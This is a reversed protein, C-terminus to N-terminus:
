RMLKSFNLTIVKGIPPELVDEMDEKRPRGRGRKAVDKNIEQDKSIEQDLPKLLSVGQRPVQAEQPTDVVNEEVNPIFQMMDSGHVLNLQSVDICLNQASSSDVEQPVAIAAGDSFVINSQDILSYDINAIDSNTM